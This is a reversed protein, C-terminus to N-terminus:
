NHGNRQRHERLSDLIAKDGSRSQDKMDKLDGEFGERAEAAQGIHGEMIATSRANSATQAAIADYIQLIREDQQQDLTTQKDEAHISSTLALTFYVALITTMLGVITWGAKKVSKENEAIAQLTAELRDDYHDRWEKCEELTLYDNTM